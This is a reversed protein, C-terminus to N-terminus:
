STIGTLVHFASDDLTVFDYRMVVKVYVQHREFAEGATTSAEVRATTRLGMAYKSFDGIVANALPVNTSPLFLKGELTPPPGLWNKAANVADGTVSTMLDDHVEPYLLVANPEHNANRIATVAASIDSWQIAGISGTSDIEAVNVLGTPQASGTGQIGWRDIQQAMASALWSGIQEALLGPADEWLERSIKTFAGATHTSLERQGFTLDSATWAAGEAKNTVTLDSELKPIVLSESDM